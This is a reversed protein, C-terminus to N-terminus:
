SKFLLMFNIKISTISVSCPVSFSTMNSNFFFFSYFVTDIKLNLSSSHIFRNIDYRLSFVLSFFISISRLVLTLLSPILLIFHSLDIFLFFCCASFISDSLLFLFLLLHLALVKMPLRLLSCCHCTLAVAESTSYAYCQRM